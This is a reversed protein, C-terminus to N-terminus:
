ATSSKGKRDEVHPCAPKKHEGGCRSCIHQFRCPVAACSRGDNWAFCSIVRRRKPRPKSGSDPPGQTSKPAGGFGSFRIWAGSSPETWPHFRSASEHTMLGDGTVRTVGQCFSPWTLGSILLRAQTPVSLLVLM